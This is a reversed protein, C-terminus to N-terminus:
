FEHAEILQIAQEAQGAELLNGSRSMHGLVGFGSNDGLRALAIAVNKQVPKHEDQLLPRLSVIADQNGISGLAWAAAERVIPESDLLVEMLPRVSDADQLLGLSQAACFRVMPVKDSLAERLGERAHVGGLRGLAIAAHWRVPPSDDDRLVGVLNKESFRVQQRGLWFCALRRVEADSDSLDKMYAQPTNPAHSRAQFLGVTLVLVVGVVPLIVTILWRASSEKM